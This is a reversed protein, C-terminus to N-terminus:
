VTGADAGSGGMAKAWVFSGSNTIKSVFIDTDGHSTLNYAAPGPDFDATSSFLGTTYVNGSSDVTIGTGVDTSSGGMADAWGFSGNSYVKSVFVDTDGHSTLNYTALAPDFDATGSFLGTTYVNGSNDLAIRVGSSARAGGLADAWVFNGNQDLRSIFVGTGASI